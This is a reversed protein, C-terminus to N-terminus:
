GLPLHEWRNLTPGIAEEEDALHAVFHEALEGLAGALRCRHAAADPTALGEAGAGEEAREAVRRPYGM